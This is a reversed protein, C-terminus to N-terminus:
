IGALVEGNSLQMVGLEGAPFCRARVLHRTARGHHHHLRGKFKRLSGQSRDAQACYGDLPPTWTPKLDGFMVYSRKHDLARLTELQFVAAEFRTSTDGFLPYLATLRISSSFDFAARPAISQASLTTASVDAHQEVAAQRQLLPECPQPLQGARRAVM